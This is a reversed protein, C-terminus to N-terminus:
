GWRRSAFSLEEGSLPDEFALGRALLCLPRALDDPVEPLLDPYYRDGLIPFGLRAMHLRLQHKKGTIPRLEFRGLRLGDQELIEVLEIESEANATGEEERMRFFPEGPGIRSRVVFFREEPLEALAAFAEYVKDIRRQEFLQAYLGRTEARRSFLVLGSTARDLRHLPALEEAPEGEAALLDAVEYLLSGRVWPGSPVVPQFPPKDVVLLDANRFVIEPAGFAPAEEAVERFYRLEQHQAAPLAPDLPEGDAGLVRGREFRDSWIERAVGPFRASLFDLLSGAFGGSPM